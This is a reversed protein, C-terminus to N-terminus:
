LRASIVNWDLIKWFNRLYKQKNNGYDLQFAHEWWDVLLAIDRRVKHNVITRIAGSRSLYIWGSGQIKMAAREFESQFDEFSGFKEDILAGIPGTPKNAGAPSKLQAFFVNHLYAGAENFEADGEGANFRDVYTKALVKYHFKVLDESLVPALGATPVPLDVLQLKVQDELLEVLNRIVNADSMETM